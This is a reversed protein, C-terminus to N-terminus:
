GNSETKTKDIEYSIVGGRIINFYWSPPICSNTNKLLKDIGICAGALFDQQLNLFAKSKKNRIGAEKARVNLADLIEKQIESTLIKNQEM